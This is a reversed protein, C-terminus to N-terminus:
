GQEFTGWDLRCFVWKKDEKKYTDQCILEKSFGEYKKEILFKMNYIFGEFNIQQQDKKMKKRCMYKYKFRYRGFCIDLNDM